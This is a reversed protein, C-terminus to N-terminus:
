LLMFSRVFIRIINNAAASTTITHPWGKQPPPIIPMPNPSIIALLLRGLRFSLITHAWQWLLPHM